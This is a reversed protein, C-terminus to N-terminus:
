IMYTIIKLLMPVIHHIKAMELISEKLSRAFKMPSLLSVQLRMSQISEKPYLTLIM